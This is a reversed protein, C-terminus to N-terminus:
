FTLVKDAEITWDALDEMNARTAHEVLLDDAIGRADMCTGCCGIKAGHKAALELTHALNYYGSAVQTSMKM